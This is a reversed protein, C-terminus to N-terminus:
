CRGRGSIYDKTWEPLSCVGGVDGGLLLDLQFAAVSVGGPVTQALPRLHRAVAATQHPVRTHVLGLNVLSLLLLEVYYGEVRLLVLRTQSLEGLQVQLVTQQLSPGHHGESLKRKMTDM